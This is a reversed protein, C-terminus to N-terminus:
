VKVTQDHSASALRKGDASFAVSTVPGNHGRLTLTEQGSTADWVKVASHNAAALRTGDPSFAVSSIGGSQVKLTLQEQGTTVDWVKVEGPSGAEGSASALRKGDLGFTVSLPVTSHGKLTLKEQGSTADWVKVTRDRAGSALLTGDPSIAVSRVVGDHRLTLQEHGNTTDWVKITRDCSASALRKGDPSFAVSLVHSSHGELSMQYTHTLRNWYHWEFGRVDNEEPQPEHQKLLDLVTGVRADEWAAQALNMHSVYLSRRAEEAKADARHAEATAQREALTANERAEDAQQRQQEALMRQEAAAHQALEAELRAHTAADREQRVALLSRTTALVAFGLTVVVAATMAVLPRHKRLFKRLRYGVSPPCAEVQEDRLYREVDRALGTATEYRRTRDKELAKMVIWDLEGSVEKTLKTPDLKRQASLSALSDRSDTM